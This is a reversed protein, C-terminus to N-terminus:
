ESTQKIIHRLNIELKQVKLIKEGDDCINMRHRTQTSYCPMSRVDNDDNCSFLAMLTILLGIMFNMTKM